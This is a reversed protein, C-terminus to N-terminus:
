ATESGVAAGDDQQLENREVGQGWRSGVLMELRKSDSVCHNLVFSFAVPGIVTCILVAWVGILYVEQSIVSASSASSSDLSSAYAVQLILIRVYPM